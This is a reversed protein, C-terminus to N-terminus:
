EPLFVTRGAVEVRRLHHGYAASLRDAQLVAQATGATVGGQGDLLIVHDAYRAALDIDHLVLVVGAGETALSRFLELVRIRYHLDLHNLPEDLLYLAPQQALLAAIAVRQREGGSLSQLDREAFAAMGVRDLAAHAIRQDERGEWAWRGLHPHRGVLATELVSAPFPDPQIQPLVARLRATERPSRGGYPTGALRVEGAEAPRLGALTHLLTTKGAGNPGLLVLCEGADLRLSFERCLWRSGVQLAVRDAELLASAPQRM